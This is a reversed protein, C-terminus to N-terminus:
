SLLFFSDREDKIKQHEDILYLCSRAMTVLSGNLGMAIRFTVMERAGFIHEWASGSTGSIVTDGSM